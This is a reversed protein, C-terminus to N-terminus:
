LRNIANHKSVSHNCAIALAIVQCNDQCLNHARSNVAMSGYGELWTAIYIYAIPMYAVIHLLTLLKQPLAIDM